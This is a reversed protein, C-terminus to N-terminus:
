NKISGVNDVYCYFKDQEVGNKKCIIWYTTNYSYVKWYTIKTCVSTTNYLKKISIHFLLSLDHIDYLTKTWDVM